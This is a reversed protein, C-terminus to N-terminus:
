IFSEILRILSDISAKKENLIISQPNLEVKEAIKHKLSTLDKESLDIGGAAYLDKINDSWKKRNNNLFPRYDPLSPPFLDKYKEYDLIDEFESERKENIITQLINGEDLLKKEYVKNKSNNAENDYDLFAIVKKCLLNQYMTIVSVLNNVGGISRLVFTGDQIKQCIKPSFLCLLATLSKSDSTGELLLINEANYLNDSVAIGLEERIQRISEISEAKNNRVIINASLKNSNVLIPSHTSVIVQNTKSMDFLISKIRHIAEPHLHAEPEEVAITLDKENSRTGQMLSLAILSKLGDGKEFISTNVGDDIRIEASIRRSMRRMENYDIQVNRVNPIFENLITNIKQSLNTVTEQLINDMIKQAQEYEPTSKAIDRLERDILKEIIEISSEAPRIAPIYISDLNLSIFKAIENIKKAFNKNTAGHSRKPIKTIISKKSLIIEFPLNENFNLKLTRSFEQQEEKSLIFNIRFKTTGNPSRKQKSVPFDRNWDYDWSFHNFIRRRRGIVYNSIDQIVDSKLLEIIYFAGSLARLINSKGENNKGILITINKDLPVNYAEKISRYNTITFSKIKM